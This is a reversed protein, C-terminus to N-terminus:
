TPVCRRFRHDPPFGQLGHRKSRRESVRARALAWSQPVSICPSRDPVKCVNSATGDRIFLRARSAHFQELALKAPQREIELVGVALATPVLQAKRRRNLIEAGDLPGAFGPCGQRVRAAREAEAGVGLVIRAIPQNPGATRVPVAYGAAM